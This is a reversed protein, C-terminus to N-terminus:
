CLRELQRALVLTRDHIIHTLPCPVAHLVFYLKKLMIMCSKSLTPDEEKWFGFDILKVRPAGGPERVDVMVNESHVDEMTVKDGLRLIFWLGQKTFDGANIDFITKGHVLQQLLCLKEDYNM